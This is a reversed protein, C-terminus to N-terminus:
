KVEVRMTAVEGPGLTISFSNQQTPLEGKPLLVGDSRSRSASIDTKVESLTIKTEAGAGSVDYLRLLLSHDAVPKLMTVMVAPNSSRIIDVQEANFGLRRGFQAAQSKAEAEDKAAFSTLRSWFKFESSRPAGLFAHGYATWGLVLHQFGGGFPGKVPDKDLPGPMIVGSHDSTFAVGFGDGMALVYDSFVADAPMGYMWGFVQTLANIGPFNPDTMRAGPILDGNGVPPGPSFHYPNYPSEVILPRDAPVNLPYAFTHDIIQDKGTKITQFFTVEKAGCDLWIEQSVEEVPGLDVKLIPAVAKLLWGPITVGLAEKIFKTLTKVADPNRALKGSIKVWARQPGAEKIEVQVQKFGPRHFVNGRRGADEGRAVVVYQNLQYPGSGVLERGLEKDYLSSVGGTKRDVELHYFRNEMIVKGGEERAFVEGPPCLSVPCIVPPYIPLQSEIKQIRAIWERRTEKWEATDEKTYQTNGFPVPGPNHDNNLSILKYAELIPAAIEPLKEGQMVDFAANTEISPVMSEFHREVATREPDTQAMAFFIQEGWFGPLEGRLTPIQGAYAKEVEAFFESPTAVILKPYAWRTNWAQALESPTLDQPGNDVAHAPYFPLLYIDYPYDWHAGFFDFHEQVIQPPTGETELSKLYPGLRSEIEALAAERVPLEPKMAFDFNEGYGNLNPTLWVLIKENGVPPQLYFLPPAVYHSTNPGGIFYPIQAAYLPKVIGSLDMVDNICATRIPVGYDRNIKLAWDASRFLAEAPLFKNQHSILFGGVEIEGSKLTAIMKEKEQATTAESYLFESTPWSVETFFKFRAGEPYDKTEEVLKLAARLNDLNQALIKRQSNTFGVDIHSFPSVFIRWRRQYALEFETSAIERGAGDGLTIRAPCSKAPCAPVLIPVAEQPAALSFKSETEMEGQKARAVFEGQLGKPLTLMVLQRLQGEQEALFVTPVVPGLRRDATRAAPLGFGAWIMVMLIVSQRKRV